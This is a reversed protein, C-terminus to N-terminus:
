ADERTVDFFVQELSCQELTMNRIDAGSSELHTIVEAKAAPDTCSVRITCGHSVVDRVGSISELNSSNPVEEVSVIITESGSSTKHLEDVPSVTLLEGSNMIAVRDCVTGVQDMIHSSFFVAAGRNREELIIERLLQAGDPDLGGLPEDLILLDPEGVLAIALGLRQRMGKSFEGVPRDAADTLGVRHLLVDVTDSACKMGIAFELHTRATLRNYYGSAEPLTGVMERVVRPEKQPSHGLVSITGTTPRVFDLLMNITTSKGAGNPGLFGFVEGQGVDLDVNRVASTSGYKKTLSRTQIAMM